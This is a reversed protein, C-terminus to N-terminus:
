AIIEVNDGVSIKGCGHHLANVGFNIDKGKRRYAALTQIILPDKEGTSPDISPIVCRSCLKPLSILVEGIRIKRWQDEAHATAGAIVINPRFREISIPYGLRKNLLDFSSRSVLLIPFGDAFGVTNSSHAYEPDVQRKTKKPMHVLRCDRKLFDSLYQAADDGCDQANVTDGWVEVNVAAQDQSVGLALEYVPMGPARIRLSNEGLSTKLLCMRPHQRQTLFKNSSDVLMWDRDHLPGRANLEMCSLQIGQASKIPHTFLQSVTLSTM